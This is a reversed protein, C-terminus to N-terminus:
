ISLYDMSVHHGQIIYYKIKVEVMGTFDFTIWPFSGKQLYTSHGTVVDSWMKQTEFM